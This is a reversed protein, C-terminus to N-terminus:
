WAPWRGLLARARDLIQREIVPRQDWPAQEWRQGDAVFEALEARLEGDATRSSVAALAGVGQLVGVAGAATAEAWLAAERAPPLPVMPRRGLEQLARDSLAAARHMRVATLGALVRLSPTDLGIVLADAAVKPLEQDAL